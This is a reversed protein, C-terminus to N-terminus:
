RECSADREDDAGVSGLIGIVRIVAIANERHMAHALSAHANFNADHFM